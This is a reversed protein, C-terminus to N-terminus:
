DSRLVRDVVSMWGTLETDSPTSPSNEAPGDIRRRYRRVGVEYALMALAVVATMLAVPLVKGRTVVALGVAVIALFQYDVM